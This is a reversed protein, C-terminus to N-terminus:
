VADDAFVAVEIGEEFLQIFGGSGLGGVREECIGFSFNAGLLGDSPSAADAPAAGRVLAAAIAAARVTPLM